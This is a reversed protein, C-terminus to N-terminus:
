GTPASSSSRRAATAWIPDLYPKMMQLFGSDQPWRGMRGTHVLASAHSIEGVYHPRTALWFFGKARIVGPWPM